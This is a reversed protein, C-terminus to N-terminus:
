SCLDPGRQEGAFSNDHSIKSEMDSPRIEYIPRNKPLHFVNSAIKNGHAVTELPQTQAGIVIGARKTAIANDRILTNAAAAYGPSGHSVVLGAGSPCLIANGEIRHNAGSIRIPRTRILLNGTLVANPGGRLNPAADMDRFVNWRVAIGPTKLSIAERDGEARYFLNHEIRTRLEVMSGGGNPGAVQIPEQGNGSLRPIDRFVNHHIFANFPQSRDGDAGARIKISMSRSGSFTNFDIEANEGGLRVIVCEAQPKKPNGCNLFQSETLRVAPATITVAGVGVDRFTFGRLVVHGAGVQIRTPGTFTVANGGDIIVPRGAAGGGETLNITTDTYTGPAVVIRDGPHASALANGLQAPAVQQGAPAKGPSRSRAAVITGDPLIQTAILEDGAGARVRATYRGGTCGVTSVNDGDGIVVPRGAHCQGSVQGASDIRLTVGSKGQWTLSPPSRTAIGAKLDSTAPAATARDIATLALATILCGATAGGIRRAARASPRIRVDDLNSDM